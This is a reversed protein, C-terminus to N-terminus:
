KEGVTIINSKAEVGVLSRCLCISIVTIIFRRASFYFLMVGTLGSFKKNCCMDTCIHTDEQGDRGARQHSM